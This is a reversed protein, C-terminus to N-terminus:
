RLRFRLAVPEGARLVVVNAEPRETLLLALYERVTANGLADMPEDGVVVIVDGRQLGSRDAPGDGGLGVPSDNAM